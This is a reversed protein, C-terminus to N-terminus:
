LIQKFESISFECFQTVTKTNIQLVLQQGKVSCIYNRWVGFYIHIVIKKEVVRCYDKNYSYFWNGTKDDFYKTGNNLDIKCKGNRKLNVVLWLDLVSM